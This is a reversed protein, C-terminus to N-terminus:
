GHWWEAAGQRLRAMVRRLRGHAADAGMGFDAATATVTASADFRAALLARDAAPLEALCSRLWVQQETAALLEWPEPAAALALEAGVIQERAVRRRESRLRDLVAHRVTRAMWAAVAANSGLAPMKRAVTFMVDQVVDLCFAEDRRSVARALALTPAFWAAYFTAFAAEDGAALARVVATNDISGPQPEAVM